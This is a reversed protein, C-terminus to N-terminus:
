VFDDLRYPGPPKASSGHGQMDYRVLRRRPQLRPVLPEWTELDSGVGHILVLPAGAGTARVNTGDVLTMSSRAAARKRGAPHAAPGGRQLAQPQAHGQRPQCRPLLVLGAPIAPQPHGAAGPDERGRLGAHRVAPQASAALLLHPRRAPWADEAAGRRAAPSPPPRALPLGLPSLRSHGGGGRAQG